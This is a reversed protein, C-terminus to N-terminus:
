IQMQKIKCVSMTLLVIWCKTNQAIGTLYSKFCEENMLIKVVNQRFIEFKVEISHFTKGLIKGVVNYIYNMRVRSNGFKMLFSINYSLRRVEIPFDQCEIIFHLM